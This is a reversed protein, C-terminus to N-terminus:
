AGKRKVASVYMVAVSCQVIYLVFIRTNIIMVRKIECFFGKCLLNRVIANHNIREGNNGRIFCDGYKSRLVGGAWEETQELAINM